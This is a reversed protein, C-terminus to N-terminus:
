QPRMDRRDWANVVAEIVEEAGGPRQAREDTMLPLAVEDIVKCIALVTDHDM